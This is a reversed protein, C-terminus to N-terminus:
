SHPRERYLTSNKFTQIPEWQELINRPLYPKDKKRVVLFDLTDNALIPTLESLQHLTKVQGKTYFEASYYHKNWYYLQGPNTASSLQLTQYKQVVYKQTRHELIHPFFTVALFSVLGIFISTAGCLIFSIRWARSKGVPHDTTKIWLELTLFGFAPIAPLM